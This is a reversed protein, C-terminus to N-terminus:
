GESHVSESTAGGVAVQLINIPASGFFQQINLNRVIYWEVVLLAFIPMVLFDAETVQRQFENCCIAELM